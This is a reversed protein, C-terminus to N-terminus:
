LTPTDGPLQISAGAGALASELEGRREPPVEVRATLREGYTMQVIVVDRSGAAFDRL